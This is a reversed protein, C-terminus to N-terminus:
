EALFHLLIKFAVIALIGTLCIATVWEKIYEDLNM